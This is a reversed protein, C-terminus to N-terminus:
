EIKKLQYLYETQFGPNQLFKLATKLNKLGYVISVDTAKLSHSTVLVVPTEAM